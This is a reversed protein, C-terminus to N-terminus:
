LEHHFINIHPVKLTIPVSRERERERERERVEVRGKEDVEKKDRKTKKLNCSLETTTM